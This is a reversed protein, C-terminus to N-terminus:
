EVEMMTLKGNVVSLQYKKGTETDTLTHPDITGWETPKGGDDISKVVLTQGITATTPALVVDSVRSITDPIFKEDLQKLEETIFKIDVLGFGSTTAILYTTSGVSFLCWSEGTDEVDPSLYGYQAGLTANGLIKYRSNGATNMAYRIQTIIEDGNNQLVKFKTGVDFQELVYGYSAYAYFVGNKSGSTIMTSIVKGYSPITESVDLYCLRDSMRMIDGPILKSDLQKLMIIKKYVSTLSFGETKSFLYFKSHPDYTAARIENWQQILCFEEGTDSKDYAVSNQLDNITDLWGNPILSLNGCGKIKTLVPSSDNKSLWVSNYEVNDIVFIDILTPEQTGLDAEAYYSGNDVLATPGLLESLTGSQTAIATNIIHEYCVRNKIYSPDDADYTSWDGPVVGINNRARTKQATTLSQATYKVANAAAESSAAGINSRIQSRQGDTLNQYVSYRVVDPYITPTNSLDNYSGSIAVRALDDQTVIGDPLDIFKKDLKHIIDGGTTISITHSASIEREQRVYIWAEKNAGNTELAFPEGTDIEIGNDYEYVANNGLMLYGYYERAISEYVVGDWTINYKQGKILSHQLTVVDNVLTPPLVVITEGKEVYHTRNKIYDDATPDNQEWNGRYKKLKQNFANNITKIVEKITLM